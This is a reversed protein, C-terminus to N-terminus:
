VMPLARGLLGAASYLGLEAGSFNRQGVLLDGQTFCYGGTISAAGVALYQAFERNYPSISEKHRALDKRWYLLTLYALMAAATALVGTEAVPYKLLMVGGFSLRLAVMALGIVALRSFWGLGQCLANAFAGWLGALVCVLASLMLGSRPFHFFDSLPKLFLAAAVSGALTLRFLFKRCGALLGQLRAEDGSARFHAIYHTVSTSGILLPLGLLGIFGLTSNVYGYEAKDLQRGLIAQFGYNGLGAVVGAVSLVVGSRWLKTM